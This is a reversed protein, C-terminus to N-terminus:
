VENFTYLHKTAIRRSCYVRIEMLSKELNVDEDSDKKKMNM